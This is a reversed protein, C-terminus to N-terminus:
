KINFAFSVNTKPVRNKNEQPPLEEDFETTEGGDGTTNGSM